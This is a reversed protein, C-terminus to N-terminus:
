CRCPNIYLKWPLSSNLEGTGLDNWPGRNMEQAWTEIIPECIILSRSFTNLM